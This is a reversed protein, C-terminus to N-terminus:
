RDCLDGFREDLMAAVAPPFERACGQDLYGDAGAALLHLLTFPDPFTSYAVIAAGPLWHRLRPLAEWGGLDSGGLGVLVADPHLDCVVPAWTSSPYRAVIQFRDDGAFSAALLDQLEPDADITVVRWRRDVVIVGGPRGGGAATFEGM